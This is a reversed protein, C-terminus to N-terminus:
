ILSSLSSTMFCVAIIFFAARPIITSRAFAV